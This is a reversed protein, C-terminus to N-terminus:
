FGNQALLNQTGTGTSFGQGLAGRLALSQIKAKVQAPSLTPDEGLLLASLGTIHPTSMSTGSLVASATNSTIGCSIIDV